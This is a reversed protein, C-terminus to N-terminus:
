ALVNIELREIKFDKAEVKKNRFNKKYFFKARRSKKGFNISRLINIKL